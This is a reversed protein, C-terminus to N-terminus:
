EDCGKWRGLNPDGGRALDFLRRFERASVMVWDQDVGVPAQLFRVHLMPERGRGYAEMSLKQLWALTVGLSRHETQKAEIQYRESSGDSKLGDLCGSGAHRKGHVLAAADTEQARVTQHNSHSESGSPRLRFARLPDEKKPRRYKM